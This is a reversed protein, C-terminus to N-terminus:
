ETPEEEEEFQVWNDGLTTSWMFEDGAWLWALSDGSTALATRGPASLADLCVTTQVTHSLTMRSLLTGACENQGTRALLYREGSIAIAQSGPMPDSVTWNSGKDGTTVVRNDYCLVAATTASTTTLRAAECPVTVAGVTPVHLVTADAPDIYWALEPGGEVVEWTVGATNSQMVTVAECDEKNLALLSVLGDGGPLLRLPSSLAALPAPDSAIWNKGGDTTVEIAANADPCAGTTARYGVAADQVAIIRSVAPVPKIEEEKAPNTQDVDDLLGSEDEEASQQDAPVYGPTAGADPVEPNAHKFALISIVVTVAALLVIGAVQWWNVGEFRTRM